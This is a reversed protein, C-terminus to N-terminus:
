KLINKITIIFIGASFGLMFHNFFFPLSKYNHKSVNIEHLSRGCLYVSGLTAATLVIINKLGFHVKLILIVTLELVQIIQRVLIISIM